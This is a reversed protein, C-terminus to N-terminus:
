RKKERAMEELASAFTRKQGKTFVVANPKKEQIEGSAKILQAYVNRVTVYTLKHWEMASKDALDDPNCSYVADVAATLASKYHEPLNVSKLQAAVIEKDELKGDQMLVTLTKFHMKPNLLNWYFNADSKDGKLRDFSPKNWPMFVVKILDLDGDNEIQKGDRGLFPYSKEVADILEKALEPKAIADALTEVIHYPMCLLVQQVPSYPSNMDMTVRKYAEGAQLKGSAVDAVIVQAQEAIKELTEQRSPLSAISVMLLDTSLEEVSETTQQWTVPDVKQVQKTNTRERSYIENPVISTYGEINIGEAM